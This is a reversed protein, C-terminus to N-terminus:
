PTNRARWAAVRQMVLSRAEVPAVIEIRGASAMAIGAIWNLSGIQVTARIRGDACSNRSTVCSPHFQELGQATALITVEVDGVFSSEIKVQDYNTSPVDILRPNSMRDIRFARGDNATQCWAHVYNLGDHHSIVQPEIIRRTMHQDGSVYDVELCTQNHIASRVADLVEDDEDLAVIEIPAGVSDAGARIHSMLSRIEPIDDPDVTSELATLGALLATAQIRDLRVLNSLHQLNQVSIWDDDEDIFIEILEGGYLGHGTFPVDRLLRKVTAATIEFEDAVEHVYCGGQQQVWQLIQIVLTVEHSM